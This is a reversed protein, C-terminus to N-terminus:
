SARPHLSIPTFVFSVPFTVLPSWFIMEKGTGPFGAFGCLVKFFRTYLCISCVPSSGTAEVSGTHRAGLQALAGYYKVSVAPNSGALRSSGALQNRTLGTIVVEIRRWPNNNYINEFYADIRKKNKTFNYDGPMIQRKRLHTRTVNVFKSKFSLM